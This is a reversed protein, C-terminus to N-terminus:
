AKAKARSKRAPTPDPADVAARLDGLTYTDLVDEFTLTPDKRRSTIWAVAFLADTPLDGTETAASLKGMSVLVDEGVVERYDRFDRGTWKNPDFDINM